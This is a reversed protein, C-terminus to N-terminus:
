KTTEKASPVPVTITEPNVPIEGTQGKAKLDNLLPRGQEVQSWAPCRVRAHGLPQPTSQQDRRRRLRRLHGCVGWGWAILLWDGAGLLSTTPGQTRGSGPLAVVAMAVSGLGFM